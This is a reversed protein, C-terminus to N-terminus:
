TRFRKEVYQNLSKSQKEEEYEFGFKCVLNLTKCLSLIMELLKHWDYEISRKALDRLAQNFWMFKKIRFMDIYVESKTEKAIKLVKSIEEISDNYGPVIPGYFIWTKIGEWALKRLAEVRAQPPSSHPELKVMASHNSTSTITIGVDVVDKYNKLLDIDRLILSNKTQVSVRFGNEVLVEISKRSLKYLAEVPQYPDTITGIGVFGRRFRKVERMLLAVINKKVLVIKGWNDVVERYRTYAKAYCYFCGHACGIYPNLAYDIGPLGSESLAQKVEIEVVKFRM